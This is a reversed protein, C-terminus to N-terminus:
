QLKELVYAITCNNHQESLDDLLAKLADPGSCDYLDGFWVQKLFVVNTDEFSKVSLLVDVFENMESKVTKADKILDFATEQIMSKISDFEMDPHKEKLKKTINKQDNLIHKMVPVSSRIIKECMKSIEDLVKTLDQLKEM